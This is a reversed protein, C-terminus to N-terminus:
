FVRTSAANKPMHTRRRAHYEHCETLRNAFPKAEQDVLKFKQQREGLLSM